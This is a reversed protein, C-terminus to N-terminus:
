LLYLLDLLHIYTMLSLYKSLTKAVPPLLISSTSSLKVVLKPIISVDNSLAMQHVIVNLTIRVIVLAILLCKGALPVFHSGIIVHM